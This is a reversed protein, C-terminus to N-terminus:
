EKEIVKNAIGNILDLLELHSNLLKIEDDKCAIFCVPKVNISGGVGGSAPHNEKKTIVDMGLTAFNLKVNSIPIITYGNVNIEKGIITNVDILRRINDISSDLM